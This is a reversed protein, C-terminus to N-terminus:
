NAADRAAQGCEERIIGNPFAIRCSLQEVEKKGTNSLELTHISVQNGTGVFPTSSVLSYRLAPQRDSLYTVLWTAGAGILAVVVGVVLKQGISEKEDQKEVEAM